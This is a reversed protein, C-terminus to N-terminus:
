FTQEETAMVKGDGGIVESKSRKKSSVAILSTIPTIINSQISLKEIKNQLITKNSIQNNIYDDDSLGNLALNKIYEVLKRKAYITNILNYKSPISSINNESFDLVSLPTEGPKPVTEKDIISVNETAMIFDGSKLKIQVNGFPLFEEASIKYYIIFVQGEILVKPMGIVGTQRDLCVDNGNGTYCVNLDAFIRSRSADLVARIVLKSLNETETGTFYSELLPNNYENIFSPYGNGASAIGNVLETSAGAGIGFTFFRNEKNNKFVLEIAEKTNTIAGDTLIFVNRKQGQLRKPMLFVEELAPILETGGCDALLEDIMSIAMEKSMDDYFQSNFFLNKHESGFKIINFYSGKPLSNILLSMMSQSDLIRQGAMSGSCDVIFIYESQTLIKHNPNFQLAGQDILVSTRLLIEAPEKEVANEDFLLTEYASSLVVGPPSELFKRNLSPKLLAKEDFKKFFQISIDGDKSFALRSGKFSIKAKDNVVEYIIDPKIKETALNNALTRGLSFINAPSTSGTSQDPTQIKDFVGPQHVTLSFDLDYNIKSIYMERFKVDLGWAEPRYRTFLSTPFMYLTTASLQDNMQIVIRNIVKKAMNKRVLSDTHYSNLFSSCLAKLHAIMQISEIPFKHKLSSHDLYIYLHVIM